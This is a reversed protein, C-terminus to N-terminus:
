EVQAYARVPFAAAGRFKVPVAHFVFKGPSAPLAALNTLNEVILVKQSLLTVHVPREPNSLDDVVLTDVGVLKAGRDVLEQATGASLYPFDFYEPQGWYQSWDTRFLVAMGEVPLGLLVEPDIEQRAEVHTCDVIVGPLVLQELSLGEISIGEPDFHYPSDLYTGLSTVFKVESIECSCNRYRGSSAAQAHSMWADIRPQPAQQSFMPMGREITHSVDILKMAVM